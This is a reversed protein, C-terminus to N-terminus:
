EPRKQKSAKRDRQPLGEKLSHRSASRQSEASLIRKIEKRLWRHTPDADARPHWSTSITIEPLPFPLAFIFVPLTVHQAVLRPVCTVWESRAVAHLASLFDPVSASVTRRLGLEALAVDVPGMMRGRRSVAVHQAAAFRRATITGSALPHKRRTVGVFSDRAIGEVRLEPETMDMVGVDLDVRGERLSAADEEGEPVFRFRLEPAQERSSTLLPGLLITAVADSCRITMTRAVDKLPATERPGLVAAADRTITHVRERLSIAYATPVMVSGARVLLPDNLSERLRGLARSMAPTTVSVRRAARTVSSEQLLADLAHLLNLDQTATMPLSVQVENCKVDVLRLRVTLRHGVWLEFRTGFGLLRKPVEVSLDKKGFVRMWERDSQM